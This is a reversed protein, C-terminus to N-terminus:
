RVSLRVIEPAISGDRRIRQSTLEDTILDHKIWKSRIETTTYVIGALGLTEAKRQDEAGYVGELARQYGDQEQLVVREAIERSVQAPSGATYRPAVHYYTQPM